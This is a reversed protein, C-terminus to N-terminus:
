RDCPRRPLSSRSWSSFDWPLGPSFLKALMNKDRRGHNQPPSKGSRNLDLV